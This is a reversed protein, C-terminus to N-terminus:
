DGLLIDVIEMVEPAVIWGLLEMMLRKMDEQVMLRESASVVEYNRALEVSREYFSTIADYVKSPTIVAPISPKVEVTETSVSVQVKAIVENTAEAEVVPNLIKRVEEVDEPRQSGAHVEDFEHSTLVGDPYDYVTLSLLMSRCNIHLPPTNEALRPDDLRMVLGHRDSCIETTRDDMVASFEVGIVDDNRKMSVLSGLTSARTVETRAIAEIRAESMRSLEPASERLATMREKLTSGSQMSSRIVENVKQSVAAGLNGSLKPVYDKLWDIAEQPIVADWEDSVGNDMFKQLIERLEDEGPMDSLSVKGRYRYGSKAAKLEEVYLHNLWYGYAYAERLTRSLKKTFQEPIQLPNDLM